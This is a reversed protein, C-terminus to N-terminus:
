WWSNESGIFEGGQLTEVFGKIFCKIHLSPVSVCCRLLKAAVVCDTGLSIYM